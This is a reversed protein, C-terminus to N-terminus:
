HSMRYSPGAANGEQRLDRSGDAGLKGHGKDSYVTQTRRRQQGQELNWRCVFFSFFLPPFFPLQPMASATESNSDPLLASWRRNPNLPQKASHGSATPTLFLLDTAKSSIKKEVISISKLVKRWSWYWKNDHQFVTLQVRWIGCLIKESNTQQKSKSVCEDLLSGVSFMKLSSAWESM